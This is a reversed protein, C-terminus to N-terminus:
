RSSNLKQFVKKFLEKSIVSVSRGGGGCAGTRMVYQSILAYDVGSIGLCPHSYTKGPVTISGSPLPMVSLYDSNYAHRYWSRVFGGIMMRDSDTRRRVDNAQETIM